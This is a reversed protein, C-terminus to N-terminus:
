DIARRCIRTRLRYFDYANLGIGGIFAIPYEWQYFDLEMKYVQNNKNNAVINGQFDEADFVITNTIYGALTITNTTTSTKTYGRLYNTTGSTDLYYITYPLANTTPFLQLANGMAPTGNPINTFSSASGAIALSGVSLTKAARIDDRIQNLAKRAGATASLKTAALTYVRLGFIQIAVMVGIFIFLYIGVSMMMELLTFASLNTRRSRSPLNSFLKM